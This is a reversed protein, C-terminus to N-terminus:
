VDMLGYIAGPRVKVHDISLHIGITRFRRYLAFYLTLKRVPASRCCYFRNQASFELVRVSFFCMVVAWPLNIPTPAYIDLKERCVYLVAASDM